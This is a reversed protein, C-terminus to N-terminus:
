STCHAPGSVGENFDTLTVTWASLQSKSASTYGSNAAAITAAISSGDAGGAVNLEAAILQDIMPLQAKSFVVGGSNYGSGAPTSLIDDVQGATLHYSGILLLGAADIYTTGANDALVSATYTDHNKYYGVTYTCNHGSDPATVFFFHIESGHDFNAYAKTPNNGTGCPNPIAAKTGLDLICDTHDYNVGGPITTATITTGSWTDQYDPYDSDPTLRTFITVCAGIGVVYETGDPVNTTWTGDGGDAGDFGGGIAIGNNTGTNTFKYTGAPASGDVCALIHTANAYGGGFITADRPGGAPSTISKGANDACAALVVLGAIAGAAFAVRGAKLDRFSSHLKSFLQM